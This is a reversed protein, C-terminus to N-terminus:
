QQSQEKESACEIARDNDTKRKYKHKDVDNRKRKRYSAFIFKCNTLVLQWDQRQYWRVFRSLQGSVNSVCEFLRSDRYM